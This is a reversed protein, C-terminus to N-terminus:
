FMGGVQEKKQIDDLLQGGVDLVLIEAERQLVAWLLQELGGVYLGTGRAQPTGPIEQSQKSM